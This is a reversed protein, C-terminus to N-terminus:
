DLSQNNINSVDIIKKYEEPTLDNYFYYVPNLPQDNKRVEYHLHPGVSKGTNGVYGIIEGRKVKQGVKVALKSMHGYLSTYGYGHDLVVHLGYGNGENGATIVKGDGTAYIPTGTPATFDIGAHFKTTKYIPDIRYGFGSAIRTLDLDYIPQIAPISALMKEKNKILKVIEDFSKSQIYIQKTLIDIKKHTEILLDANSSSEFKKYRNSGGFGAQRIESPIPDTEFIVRYIKDDRQQLEALVRSLEEVRKNLFEYQLKLEKNEEELLKEKPSSVYSFILAVIIASLILSLSFYSLAQKIFFAIGREIKEYKLTHPDFKYKVKTM